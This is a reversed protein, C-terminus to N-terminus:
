DNRTAEWKEFEAIQDPGLYRAAYVETDSGKRHAYVATLTGGGPRGWIVFTTLGSAPDTATRFWVPRKATVWADIVDFVDDPDVGYRELMRTLAWFWTIAM